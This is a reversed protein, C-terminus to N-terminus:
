VRVTSVSSTPAMPSGLPSSAAAAGITAAGIPPAVAGLVAAIDPHDDTKMVATVLWEEDWREGVLGFYVEIAAEREGRALLTRLHRAHDTWLMDDGRQEVYDALRQVLGARSRAMTALRVGDPAHVVAVYLAGPHAPELVARPAAPPSLTETTTM